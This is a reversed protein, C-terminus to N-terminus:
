SRGKGPIRRVPAVGQGQLHRSNLRHCLFQLAKCGQLGVRARGQLGKGMVGEVESRWWGREGVGDQALALLAVGAPSGPMGRATPADWPTPTAWLMHLYGVPHPFLGPHATGDPSIRWAGARLLLEVGVDGGPPFLLLPLILASSPHSIGESIAQKTQYSILM